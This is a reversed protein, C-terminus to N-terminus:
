VTVVEGDQTIGERPDGRMLVVGAVITDSTTVRCGVYGFGDSLTFNSMDVAAVGSASGGAAGTITVTAGSIPAASTGSSDTAEYLALIATQSESVPGTILVALAERYDALSLFAGTQNTTALSQPLLGVALHQNEHMKNM